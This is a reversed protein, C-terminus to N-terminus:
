GMKPLYDKDQNNDRSLALPAECWKVMDRYNEYNLWVM